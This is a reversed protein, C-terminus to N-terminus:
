VEQLNSEIMDTNRHIYAVLRQYAAEIEIEEAVDAFPFTADAILDRNNDTTYSFAAHLANILQEPNM